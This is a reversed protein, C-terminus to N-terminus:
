NGPVTNDIPTSKAGTGGTNVVTAPPSPVNSPLDPVIVGPRTDDYFDPDGSNGGIDIIYINELDTDTKILRKPEGTDDDPPGVVFVTKFGQQAGGTAFMHTVAEVRFAGEPNVPADAGQETDVLSAPGLQELGDEQAFLRRGFLGTNFIQVGEGIEITPDGPVMIMGTQIARGWIHFLSDAVFGAESPSFLTDDYVFRNRIVPRMKAGTHPDILEATKSEAYIDSVSKAEQIHSLPNTITFHTVTGATSWEMTYSIINARESPFRYFYQRYPRQTADTMRRVDTRRFMWHIEGTRHDAFLERPATEVLSFHKIVDLPFRDMLVISSEPNQTMSSPVDVRLSREIRGIKVICNDPGFEAAQVFDGIKKAERLGPTDVDGEVRNGDTDTQPAPEWLVHDIAGGHWILDRIVYARNFLETSKPAYQGRIKNDVLFSMMDRALITYVIGDAEGSGGREKVTDVVGYFVVDGSFNAYNTNGMSAGEDTFAVRTNLSQVYGMEIVILDNPAIPSHWVQPSGDLAAAIQLNASSCSWQRTLNVRATLVHWPMRDSRGNISANPHKLYMGGVGIVMDPKELPDSAGSEANLPGAWHYPVKAAERYQKKQDRKYVHVRCIPVGTQNQIMNYLNM